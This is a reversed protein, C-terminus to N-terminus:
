GYEDACKQYRGEIYNRSRREFARRTFHFSVVKSRFITRVKARVSIVEDKEETKIIVLPKMACLASIVQAEEKGAKLMAIANSKMACFLGYKKHQEPVEQYVMSALQNGRGFRSCSRRSGAFAPHKWFKMGTLSSKMRAYHKGKMKYFTIDDYTGM